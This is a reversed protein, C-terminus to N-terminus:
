GVQPGVIKYSRSQKKKERESRKKTRRNGTKHALERDDDDRVKQDTIM